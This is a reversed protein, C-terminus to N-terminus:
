SKVRFLAKESRKQPNKAELLKEASVTRFRFPMRGSEELLAITKAFQTLSTYFPLMPVFFFLPLSRSLISHAYIIHEPNSVDLGRKTTEM